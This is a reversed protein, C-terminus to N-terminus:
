GQGTWWEIMAIPFYFMIPAWILIALIPMAEYTVQFIRVLDGALNLLYVAFPAKVALDGKGTLLLTLAIGAALIGELVLANQYGIGDESDPINEPSLILDLLTSNLTAGLLGTFYFLLMIGTISILYVRAIGM